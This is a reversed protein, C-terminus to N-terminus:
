FIYIRVFVNINIDRIRIFLEYWFDSIESVYM